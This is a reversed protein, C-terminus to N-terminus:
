AKRRRQSLFRAMALYPQADTRIVEHPIELDRFLQRHTEMFAEFRQLYTKRVKEPTVHRITNTELDQFVAADEFPFEIEDPDLVQFIYVDHGRFRLEKVHNAINASPDLLDSFIAVMSRRHFLRNAQALLRDLGADGEPKLSTLHRLIQGFQTSRQSPPVDLLGVADKQRLLLWALAAAMAKAVGIKDDWARDSRYAMSGSGDIVLYVRTNTEEEFERICLRDNRAYLRWDLHRLDDGPQYDRYESFEVSFGRFPSQHIGTLFGEVLYRSKLQLNGLAALQQPEFRLAPTASAAM